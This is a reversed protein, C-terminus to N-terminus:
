GFLRVQWIVRRESWWFLNRSLSCSVREVRMGEGRTVPGLFHDTLVKGMSFVPFHDIIWLSDLQSMLSGVDCLVLCSQTYLACQTCTHMPAEDWEM